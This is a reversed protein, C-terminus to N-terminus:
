GGKTSLIGVVKSRYAEGRRARRDLLYVLAFSGAFFLLGLAIGISQASGTYGLAEALSRGLAFALFMALLPLIYVLFAATVVKKGEMAVRVTDGVSAGLNDIVEAIMYKGGEGLICAHCNGCAVSRGIRVKARGPRAEIVTGVEEVM